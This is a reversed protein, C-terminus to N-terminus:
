WIAHRWCMRQSTMFAEGASVRACGCGPTHAIAAKNGLQHNWSLSADYRTGEFLNRSHPDKSDYMTEHLHLRSGRVYLRVGTRRSSEAKVRTRGVEMQSVDSLSKQNGQSWFPRRARQYGDTASYWQPILLYQRMTTMEEGDDDGYDERPYVL